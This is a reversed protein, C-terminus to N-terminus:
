AKAHTTTSGNALRSNLHATSWSMKLISEIRGEFVENQDHWGSERCESIEAQCTLAPKYDLSQEFRGDLSM